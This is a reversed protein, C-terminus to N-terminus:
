YVVRAEGLSEFLKWRGGMALEAITWLAGVAISLNIEGISKYGSSESLLVRSDPGLYGFTGNPLQHLVFFAMYDLSTEHSVLNLYGLARVCRCALPWDYKRFADDALGQLLDKLWVDSSAIDINRMGYRTLSEIRILLDDIRGRGSNGVCQEAASIVEVYASVHPHHEFGLASLIVKKEFLALQECDDEHSNKRVISSIHELFANAVANELDFRRVLGATIINLTLSGREVLYYSGLDFARSRRLLNEPPRDLYIDARDTLARWVWWTLLSYGITEFSDDCALPDAESNIRRWVAEVSVRASEILDNAVVRPRKGITTNTVVSNVRPQEQQIEMSAGAIVALLTTHYRESFRARDPDPAVSPESNQVISPEPADGGDAVLRHFSGDPSQNGVFFRWAQHTLTTQPIRLYQWSLLVEILLDLNGESIYRVSYSSLIRALYSRDSLGGSSPPPRHGFDTAFIILHTLTYCDDNSGFMPLPPKPCRRSIEDLHPSDSKLGAWEISLRLELQSVLTRDVGDLAGCSIVQQLARLQPSAKPDRTAAVLDCIPIFESPFRVARHWLYPDGALTTLFSRVRDMTPLPINAKNRVCLRTAVALEAIAQLERDTPSSEERPPAFFSLHRDVWDLAGHAFDSTPSLAGCPTTLM